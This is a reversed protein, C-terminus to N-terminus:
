VGGERLQKELDANEAKLVDIEDLALDLRRVLELVLGDQLLSFDSRLIRVVDQSSMSRYINMHM